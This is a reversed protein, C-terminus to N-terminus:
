PDVIQIIPGIQIVYQCPRHNEQIVINYARSVIRSTKDRKCGYVTNVATDGRCVCVASARSRKLEYM